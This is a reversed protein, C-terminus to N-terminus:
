DYKCNLIELTLSDNKGDYFKDLVQQFIDNSCVTNFLTMSSRVKMADIQTFIQEACKDNHTLLAETIECLRSGLIPHSLYEHAEDWSGIGYYDSLHSHGLGKMQPFIYWIWHGLKHGKRIEQLAYPYTQEQADVFRQLNYTDM